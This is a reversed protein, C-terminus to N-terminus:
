TGEEIEGTELDVYGIFLYKWGLGHQTDPYHAPVEKFTNKQGIALFQIHGLGASDMAKNQFAAWKTDDYNYPSESMQKIADPDAKESM